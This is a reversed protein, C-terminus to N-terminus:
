FMWRSHSTHLVRVKMVCLDVLGGIAYVKQDDLYDLVAYM